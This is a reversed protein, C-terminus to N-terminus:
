KAEVLEIIRDIVKQSMLHNYISERGDPSDLEQQIKQDSYSQKLKSIEDNLEKDSLTLKELKAIESLLIALKVRREAEPKTEGEIQEETKNSLKLYEDWSLGRSELSQRMEDMLRHQQQHILGGPVPFDSKEILADLVQREYARQAEDEKQEKLKNHIDGHLEKETKFPSISAIFEEDVEPLEVQWVTNIKTKFHLKKGAVKSDHYDAPFNVDFEADTDAAKGVLNAEFDPLLQGSGIRTTFNTATAEPLEEGNLDGTFDLTVEDGEAAADSKVTKKAQRLRLDEVVKKVEEDEVKAEPKKIKLKKYDPLKVSPLIEVKATYELETYPVFKDVTVQPQAVVKVDNEKVADAYSAVIASELVEQQIYNSGLEREVITDPAKGPRFGAAKVRPRVRDYVQKLVPELHEANM